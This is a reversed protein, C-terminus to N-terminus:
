KRPFYDGTNTVTEKLINYAKGADASDYFVKSFLPSIEDKVGIAHQYYSFPLAVRVPLFYASEKSVLKFYENYYELMASLRKRIEQESEPRAPQNRWNNAAPQFLPMAEDDTKIKKLHWIVKIPRKELPIYELLQLTDKEFDEYKSIFHSFGMGGNRIEFTSDESVTWKGKHKMSDMESFSGDAHFSVLKLGFLKILSDQHRGYIERESRTDLKHDPYIILWNGILSSPLDPEENKVSRCSFIMIFLFCFPIRLPYNM